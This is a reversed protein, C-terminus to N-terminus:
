VSALGLASAFHKVKTSPLAKTLIDATMEGTPCYLLRISSAEICYRIFHYRVDIHKTRAHYLGDKTLAIASQSNSNLPTPDEFPALLEGILRRLWLAEKAAHTAAVYESEATSLTVLEQKKLAWSVAGGDVLFVYGTIARRHEQTAGDADVFGELGRQEGGYILCLTKTGLLYRFVRKVAEWHTWGPNQSFQALTSVTFAIDPRTGMAAYMLSGVAEKYPVRHMRAIDAASEPSQSKSLHVNPAMPTSVPKLDDFNFRTLIAEIYSHQSLAITHAELDRTIKIGLLWSVPGLDTLRYVARIRDRNQAVFPKSNGTILCDDVHVALLIVKDDEHKYFVGHDAEACTFGIDVLAAHLAEYWKRGGQKLGYLAKDLKLVYKKRDALEFDPPQEMYVDEELNSNLYASNFDFSEATWDNRAALALLLCFSSLKAVPAFTKDVGYVQTFGRAVLHAKYKDIEGATNKKVCLVWKCDVVNADTPREVLHWTKNAILANIEAKTAEQWHPWDPRRKAEAYTPKIGEADGSAAAMVLEVEEELSRRGRARAATVDEDEVEEVTVPRKTSGAQVGKPLVPGGPRGSVSGEGARLRKLYDSEKRVRKPREEVTPITQTSQPLSTTPTAPTSPASSQPAQPATTQPAQEFQYTEVAEEEGELPVEVDASTTVNFRVSREVTVIRRDPWYIRHADSEEDFGVWRGIAARSGLKSRGPTHVRVECGWPHLHAVNPKEGFLAEFPTMDDLARTSTRNKVYVTHRAAEGWLAHPLQSDDLMARVRETITRFSRESVGNYEPTDHTTLKRITGAKELHETFEKSLFEGGRDSHFIKIPVGLQTNYWAETQQYSGFTEDKARQLHLVTWQSMDDVFISEYRRHGLTKTPAPGWCDSHLEGGPVTARPRVREKSIPKRLMKANECSECTTAISTTDLVVGKVMGKAAM